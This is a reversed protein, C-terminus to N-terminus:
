GKGPDPRGDTLDAPEDVDRPEGTGDCSILVVRGPNARLWARAGVDGVAAAAVEDWVARALMVPNRPRGDYTAVASEAGDQAALRLRRVAEAGVWPQDVLAIVVADGDTVAIDNLGARLSAGQGDEWHQAVVVRAGPLAATARVLDASAGLVVVVEECGGERLIRTVRDVLMENDLEVLAKPGGFRRGAGAALVLGIIKM